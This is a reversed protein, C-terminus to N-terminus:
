EQEITIGPIIVGNFKVVFRTGTAPPTPPEPPTVPPEVPPPPPNVAWEGTPDNKYFGWMKHEWWFPRRNIIPLIDPRVAGPQALLIDFVDLLREAAIESDRCWRRWLDGNVRLLLREDKLLGFTNKVSERFTNLDDLDFQNNLPTELFDIIIPCGNRWQPITLKQLLYLLKSANDHVNFTPTLWPQFIVGKVLTPNNAWWPLFSPVFDPGIAGLKYVRDYRTPLEGPNLHIAYATEITM